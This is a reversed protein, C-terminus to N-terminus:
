SMMQGVEERVSIYIDLGNYDSPALSSHRGQLQQQQLDTLHITLEPVEVSGQDFPNLTQGSDIGFDDMPQETVSPAALCM